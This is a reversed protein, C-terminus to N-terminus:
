LGLVAEVAQLIHHHRVVMLEAQMEKAQLALVLEELVVQIQQVVLVLVV